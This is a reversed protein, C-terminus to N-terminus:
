RLGYLRKLMEDDDVTFRESNLKEALPELKMSAKEIAQRKQETDARAYFRRTTEISAHGLWQSLLTLDMGRQYLNMSRTHRWLHPRVNDPVDSCFAKAAVGYDFIFRRATDHHMQNNQGNRITYFLFQESYAGVGPHFIDAYNKFHEITSEMLPIVRTKGGKGHLTVTPAKGLHIDRLRIDMMEQIRAATDYLLIMFFQDRLGKKTSADPKALIAKVADESMYEIIDSKPSKKLPVKLIENRHVVVTMEMKAAYKYFARIRNLRHNRTEISCGRVDQLHDLFKALMHRDIMEFTIDCLNIQKESKVFDLLAELSERYAYITNRSYNSLKPLQVKFFDHILTFLLPDKMGREAYPENMRAM